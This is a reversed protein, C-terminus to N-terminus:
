QSVEVWGAYTMFGQARRVSVEGTLFDRAAAHAKQSTRFRFCLPAKGPFRVEVIWSPLVEVGSPVGRGAAPAPVSVAAQTRASPECPPALYPPM